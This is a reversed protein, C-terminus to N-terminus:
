FTRIINFTYTQESYDNSVINSKNEIYNGGLQAIWEKSYVYTGILGIKYEDKKEKKKYNVNEDKYKSYKYTFSPALSYKNDITYTTNLKLELSDYDINTLTGSQKRDNAYTLGVGYILNPNKIYKLGTSLEIYRSDKGSDVRRQFDKIQYKFSSSLLKNNDVLYNVKSNIGYNRLNEKDDIWVIEGFVGYDVSLGNDYIKTYAPNYSIMGVNKEDHKSDFFRKSYGLIDNKIYSTGDLIYKHNLIAIEQHAMGDDDKTANTLNLYTNFQPIYVNNFTNSDARNFVNSDYTLGFLLAGNVKHKDENKDIASLFEDVNTKIEKPLNKDKQVEQFYKKAINYNRMMYYTKAVELKARTSNPKNFLVNEYAIVAEQYKKLMFASRGLYFNIDSNDLHKEFLSNFMEYAKEFESQKYYNLAKDYEAQSESSLGNAYLVSALLTTTALKKLM